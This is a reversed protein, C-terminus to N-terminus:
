SWEHAFTNQPTKNLVGFSLRGDGSTVDQQVLFYPNVQLLNGAGSMLSSYLLMYKSYQFFELLLM